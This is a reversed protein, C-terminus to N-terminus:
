KFEEYFNNSVNGNQLFVCLFLLMILTSQTKLNFNVKTPCLLHFSCIKTLVYDLIWLYLVVGVLMISVSCSPIKVNLFYASKRCCYEKYSYIVTFSLLTIRCCGSKFVRDSERHLKLCTVNEYSLMRKIFWFPQNKFTM